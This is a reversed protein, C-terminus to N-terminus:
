GLRMRLASAYCRVENVEGGRQGSLRM